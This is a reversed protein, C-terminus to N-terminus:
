GVMQDAPSVVSGEPEILPLESTNDKTCELFGMFFIVKEDVVDDKHGVVIVNNGSRSPLIEGSCHLVEVGSDSDPVVFEDSSGSM